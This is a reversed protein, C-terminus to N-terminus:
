AGGSGYAKAAAVTGGLERILGTTVPIDTRRALERALQGDALERDTGRDPAGPFVGRADVDLEVLIEEDVAATQMMRDIVRTPRDVGFHTKLREYMAASVSTVRTSGLDMPVRDPEEHNLAAQLRERHTM